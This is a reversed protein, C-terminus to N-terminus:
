LLIEGYDQITALQCFSVIMDLMAIGEAIKYLPSLEKRLNEILAQVM